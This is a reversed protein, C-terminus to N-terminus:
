EEEGLLEVFEWSHHVQKMKRNLSDMHDSWDDEAIMEMAEIVLYLLEHVKYLQEGLPDDVEFINM